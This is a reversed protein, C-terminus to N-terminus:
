TCTQGKGTKTLFLQLIDNEQTVCHVNRKNQFGHQCLFQAGTWTHKTEKRLMEGAYM